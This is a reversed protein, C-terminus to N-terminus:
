PAGTAPSAGTHWPHPMSAGTRHVSRNATCDGDDGRSHGGSIVESAKKSARGFGPKVRYAKPPSSRASIVLLVIGIAKTAAAMTAAPSKQSPTRACSHFVFGGVAASQAASALSGSRFPTHSAVVTPPPLRAPAAPRAAPARAPPGRAPPGGRPGASVVSYAALFRSISLRPASSVSAALQRGGPIGPTM